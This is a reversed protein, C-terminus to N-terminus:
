ELLGRQVAMVAAHARNDVGLKNMASTIHAKVTREAIKLAAAIQKNPLGEGILHLITRERESLLPRPGAAARSHEQGEHNRTQPELCARALDV